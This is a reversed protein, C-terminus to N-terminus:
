IEFQGPIVSIRPFVTKPKIGFWSCYVEYREEGNVPQPDTSVLELVGDFPQSNRYTAGRVRIASVGTVQRWRSPRANPRTPPTKGRVWTSYNGPLNGGRKRM